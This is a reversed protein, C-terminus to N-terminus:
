GPQLSSLVLLAEEPSAAFQEIADSHDLIVRLVEATSANGVQLWISKPPPGHLFALQRFDSDKSAIVFGHESAYDWIERDAATDLGLVSVHTTGPFLDVLRSVLNRSLNQDLLLKM